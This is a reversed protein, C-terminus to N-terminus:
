FMSELLPFISIANLPSHSVDEKTLEDDEGFFLNINSRSSPSGADSKKHETAGGDSGGNKLIGKLEKEKEKGKSEKGKGEKQKKGEGGKKDGKEAGADEKDKAAILEKYRAKVAHKDKAGMIVAIDKWDIGQSKM